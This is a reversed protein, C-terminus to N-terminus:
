LQLGVGLGFVRNKINDSWKNDDGAINAMGIRYNANVIFRKGLKFGALFNVGYDTTNWTNDKGFILPQTSESGGDVPYTTEGNVAFGVYPGAGTFFSGINTLPIKGIFNLPIDLWTISHKIVAGGYLNSEVLKSGKKQISAEPHLYLWSAIRTDLFATIHYNRATKADGLTESDAFSYSSFNIGAKLGFATQAQAASALLTAASFSLLFKKLDM